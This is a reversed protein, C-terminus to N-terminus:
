SFHDKLVSRVADTKAKWIDQEKRLDNAQAQAAQERASVSVERSQVNELKSKVDEERSSLRKEWDSLEIQRNNLDSERGALVKLRQEYERNHDMERQELSTMRADADKTAASAKQEADTAAQLREMASREQAVLDALRAKAAEPDAILSLLRFTHETEGPPLNPLLNNM